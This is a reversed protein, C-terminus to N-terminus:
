RVHRDFYSIAIAITVLLVPYWREARRETVLPKQPNEPTTEFGSIVM